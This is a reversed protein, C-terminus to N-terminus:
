KRNVQESLPMTHDACRGCNRRGANGGHNITSHVAAHYVPSPDVFWMSLKLANVIKGIATDSNAITAPNDRRSQYVGQGSKPSAGLWTKAIEHRVVRSLAQRDWVLACAGWMSRTKIRNVGVSRGQSYHKPTYLSVFAAHKAPWKISEIFAKSDPHFLSDDQVTLIRKASTNALAYEASALWNRWVGLKTPNPLTQANTKTSGPEAFVVPEWGATRMTDISAALTCQKRPATTVAVFWDPDLAAAPLPKGAHISALDHRIKPPKPTKGGKLKRKNECYICVEGEKVLAARTCAPCREM